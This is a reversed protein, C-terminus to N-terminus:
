SYKTWDIKNQKTKPATRSTVFYIILRTCEWTINTTCIYGLISYHGVQDKTGNKDHMKSRCINLGWVVNSNATGEVM